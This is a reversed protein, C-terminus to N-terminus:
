GEDEDTLPNDYIAGATMHSLKLAIARTAPTIDDVEDNTVFFAITCAAIVRADPGADKSDLVRKADAFNLTIQGM